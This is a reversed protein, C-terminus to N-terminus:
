NSGTEIMNGWSSTGKRDSNEFLMMWPLPRTFHNWTTEPGLEEEMWRKSAGHVVTKPRQLCFVGLDRSDKFRPSNEVEVIRLVIGHKLYFIGHQDGHFKFRLFVDLFSLSRPNQLKMNM